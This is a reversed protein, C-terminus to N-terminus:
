THFNADLQHYLSDDHECLLAAKNQFAVSTAQVRQVQLLHVFIVKKGLQGTEICHEM